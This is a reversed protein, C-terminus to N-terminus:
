PSKIASPSACFYTAIAEGADPDHGGDDGREDEAGGVADLGVVDGLHDFLEDLDGLDFAVLVRLAVLLRPLLLPPLVLRRRV